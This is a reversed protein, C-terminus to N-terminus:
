KKVQKLTAGRNERLWEKAWQSTRGPLQFIQLYGGAVAYAVRRAGQLKKLLKAIAPERTQFWLDSGNAWFVNAKM